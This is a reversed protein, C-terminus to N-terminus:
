VSVSKITQSLLQGLRIFGPRLLRILSGGQGAILLSRGLIRGTRARGLFGQM